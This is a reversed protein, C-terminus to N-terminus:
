ISSYFKFRSEFCVSKRGRHKFEPRKVFEAQQAQQKMSNAASADTKIKESMEICERVLKEQEVQLQKRLSVSEEFSAFLLQKSHDTAEQLKIVTAMTDGVKWRVDSLKSEIVKIDQASEKKEIEALSKKASSQQQKKKSQELEVQLSKVMKELAARHQKLSDRLKSLPVLASQIRQVMSSRQSVDDQLRKAESSAITVATQSESEARQAGIVLSQFKTADDWKAALQQQLEISNRHTKVLQDKLV